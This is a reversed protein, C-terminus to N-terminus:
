INWPKGAVVLAPIKSVKIQEDIIAEVAEKDIEAFVWSLVLEETLQDFPVFEDSEPVPELECCGQYGGAHNTGEVEETKVARWYAKIVGDDSANRQLDEISWLTAM